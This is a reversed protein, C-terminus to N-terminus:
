PTAFTTTITTWGDPLSRRNPTAALDVGPMARATIEFAYTQGAVLIGPPVVLETASTELAAIPRLTTVGNQISVNHVLVYYRTATGLSPATWSLTPTLGVDTVLASGLADKGAIKPDVVAGVLPEIPAQPSVTSLDRYTLMYAFLPAPEANGLQAFRFKFFRSWAIRTWEQPYPDGYPWAMTVATSDNTYGPAFVVVDPAPSYYGRAAGEPLPSIAFTSLNRPDAGPYHAALEAAYAPRNWVATLTNTSPVTTFAGSLTATGGNTVTFPEPAFSRAVSRYTRGAVTQTSLQTLMLTDGASADLLVPVDALELDYTFGSLATASNAPPNAADAQMAYAATGASSSMQLEDTSQWAALETLDFTLQTPSTAGRATARGRIDVGLDVADATLLLYRTGLKLYYLGEPVEPITFTGDASGTGSHVTFSPPSLASVTANSLNATVEVIGTPSVFRRRLTGTVTRLAVPADIAADIQSADIAPDGSGGGCACALIVVWVGARM